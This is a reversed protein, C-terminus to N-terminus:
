KRDPAAPATMPTMNLLRFKIEDKEFGEFIDLELNVLAGPHSCIYDWNKRGNGKEDSVDIDAKIDCPKGDNAFFLGSSYIQGTKKSTYEDPGKIMAKVFAKAM